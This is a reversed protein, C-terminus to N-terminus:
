RPIGFWGACANFAPDGGASIPEFRHLRDNFKLTSCSKYKLDQEELETHYPGSPVPQAIGEAELLIGGAIDHAFGLGVHYFWRKKISCGHKADRCSRRRREFDVTRQLKGGYLRFHAQHQVYEDFSAVREGNMPFDIVRLILENRQFGKDSFRGIDVTAGLLNGGNDTGYSDVTNNSPCM